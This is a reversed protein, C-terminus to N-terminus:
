SFVESLRSSTQLTLFFVYIMKETISLDQPQPKHQAKEHSTNSLNKEANAYYKIWPTVTQATTFNTWRQRGNKNSLSKKLKKRVRGSRNTKWKSICIVNWKYNQFSINHTNKFSLHILPTRKEACLQESMRAKQVWM